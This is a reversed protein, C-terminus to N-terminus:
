KTMGFFLLVLNAYQVSCITIKFINNAGNTPNIDIFIEAIIFTGM